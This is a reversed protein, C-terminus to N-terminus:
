QKVTSRKHTRETITIQTTIHGAGAIETAKGEVSKKEDVTRVPGKLTVQGHQTIVKVNHAYTSLTKDSILARRIDRTISLDTRGNQQQDATPQSKARDRANVRTNDAPTQQAFGIAAVFLMACSLSLSVRGTRTYSGGM